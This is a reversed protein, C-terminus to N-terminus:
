VGFQPVRCGVLIIRCGESFDFCYKGDPIVSVSTLEIEPGDLVRNNNISAADPVVEQSDDLDEYKGSAKRWLRQAM